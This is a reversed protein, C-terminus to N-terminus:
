ASALLRRIAEDLDDGLAVFPRTADAAAPAAIGAFGPGGYAFRPAQRGLRDTIRRMMIVASAAHQPLTASVVAVRPRVIRLAEEWAEPPTDAGLYTVTWGARGLLFALMLAALDHREGAAGGVVATPANPLRPLAELLAALRGGIVSSLLHEPAPTILRRAWDTGLRDLTPALLADWLTEVALLAGAEDLVSRAATADLAVAADYLRAGLRATGALEPTRPTAREEAGSAPFPAAEALAQACAGAATLGQARLAAARRLLAVDRPRYLRHGGVSRMPQPLGYRREWVRITDVPLGTLTAVMGIPYGGAAGYADPLPTTM